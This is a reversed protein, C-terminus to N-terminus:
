TERRLNFLINALGNEYGLALFIDLFRVGGVISPQCSGFVFPSLQKLSFFELIRLAVLPCPKVFHNRNIAVINMM